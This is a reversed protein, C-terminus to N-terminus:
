DGYTKSSNWTSHQAMIETVFSLLLYIYLSFECLVFSFLDDFLRIALLIIHLYFRLVSLFHWPTHMLMKHNQPQFWKCISYMFILDDVSADDVGYAYSFRGAIESLSGFSFSDNKKKMENSAENSSISQSKYLFTTFSFSFSSSSSLSSLSLPM